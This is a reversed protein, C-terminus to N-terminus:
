GQLTQSHSTCSKSLMASIGLLWSQQARSSYKGGPPFIKSERFQLSTQDFIISCDLLPRFIPRLSRGFATERCMEQNSNASLDPQALRRARIFDMAKAPTALMLVIATVGTIKM